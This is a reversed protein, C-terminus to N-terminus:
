PLEWSLKPIGAGINLLFKKSAANGLNSDTMNVCAIVKDALARTKKM